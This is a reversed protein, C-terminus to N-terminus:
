GTASLGGWADACSASCFGVGEAAEALVALDAPVSIGCVPDRTAAEVTPICLRRRRMAKPFGKVIITGREEIGAWPPLIDDVDEGVLAEHPGALDCLRAALNVPTGIYDDGEFLIADGYTIGARLALPEADTAVRLEAELIAEVLPTPDVAVVMAGDGLWKAIRVGRRSAIERGAARFAALVRTAAVVGNRDTYATFGCLDVFAFGRKVQM